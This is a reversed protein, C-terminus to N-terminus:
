EYRVGFLKVGLWSLFFIIAMGLIGGGIFTHTEMEVKDSIYMMVLWFYISIYYSLSSAKVMQKRYMEDEPVEKRRSSMLRQVGLFLAFGIIIVLGSVMLIEEPKAEFDSNVFWLVATAIVIAVLVFILITRKM